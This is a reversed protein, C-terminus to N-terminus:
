KRFVGVLELHTSWLFQDIIAVRALEYGGGQLLKADRCFSNLDCSVAVILPVDGGALQRAQHKAGDRPPDFIVAKFPKLEEATLPERVLNRAAVQARPWGAVARQLAAIAAGDGDVATVPRPTLSLTFTGLGCFLDAVPAAAGIVSAVIGTLAAEGEATAQLFAGPPFDVMGHVFSARLPLRQLIVEDASRDWKRWSVRAINQEQALTALIERQRLKPEPGGIIVMDLAGDLWTLRVDLQKTEALYDPMAARLPALLVTLEPRLVQCERLDIVEQNAMRNFGIVAQKGRRKVALTARRRSRPPSLLPANIQSCELGNDRLAEIVTQHKWRAYADLVMHQMACGGCIGFHRCPPVAHLAGKGVIVSTTLTGERTLNGRVTDGALAGPVFFRHGDHMVIGDGQRGNSLVTFDPMFRM